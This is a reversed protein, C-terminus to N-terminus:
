INTRVIPIENQLSKDKYMTTSVPKASYFWTHMDVSANSLQNIWDPDMFIVTNTKTMCAVYTTKVYIKKFNDNFFNRNTIDYETHIGGIGTQINNKLFDKTHKHIHIHENFQPSLDKFDVSSIM